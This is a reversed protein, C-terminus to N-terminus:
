PLSIFWLCLPPPPSSQGLPFVWQQSTVRGSMSWPNRRKPPAQQMEPQLGPPLHSWEGGPKSGHKARRIETLQQGGQSMRFVGRELPKQPAEPAWEWSSRSHQLKQFMTFIWHFVASANRNHQQSRPLHPWGQEPNRYLHLSVDRAWLKCPLPPWLLVGLLRGLLVDDNNNCVNNKIICLEMLNYIHICEHMWTLRILM